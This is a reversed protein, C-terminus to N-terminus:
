VTPLQKDVERAKSSENHAQTSTLGVNLGSNFEEERDLNEKKNEYQGIDLLKSENESQNVSDNTCSLMTVDSDDLSEKTNGESEKAKGPENGKNEKSTYVSVTIVSPRDNKDKVEDSTITTKNKPGNRATTRTM